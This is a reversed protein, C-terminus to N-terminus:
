SFKGGRLVQFSPSDVSDWCSQDTPTPYTSRNLWELMCGQLNVAPVHGWPPPHNLYNEKRKMPSKCTLFTLTIKWPTGQAVLTYLFFLSSLMVLANQVHTTVYALRKGGLKWAEVWFSPCGSLRLGDQKCWLLGVELPKSWFSDLFIWRFRKPHNFRKKTSVNNKNYYFLNRYWNENTANQKTWDVTPSMWKKLWGTTFIHPWVICGPLNVHFMIM